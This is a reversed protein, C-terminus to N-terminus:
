TIGLFKNRFLDILLILEIPFEAEIEESNYELHKLEKKQKTREFRLQQLERKAKVDVLAAEATLKAATAADVSQMSEEESEKIKLFYTENEDSFLSGSGCSKQWKSNDRSPGRKIPTFSLKRKTSSGNATEENIESNGTSETIIDTARGGTNLLAADEENAFDVM